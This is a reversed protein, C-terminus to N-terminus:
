LYDHNLSYSIIIKYLLNRKNYISVSFVACHVMGNFGHAAAYFRMSKNNILSNSTDLINPHFREIM